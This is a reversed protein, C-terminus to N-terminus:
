LAPFNKEQNNWFECIDPPIDHFESKIYRDVKDQSSEQGAISETDLCFLTDIMNMQKKSVM